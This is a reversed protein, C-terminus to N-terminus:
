LRPLTGVAVEERTHSTETWRLADPKSIQEGSKMFIPAFMERDHALQRAIRQKRKKAGYVCAAAVAAVVLIVAIIVIYGTAFLNTKVKQGSSVDAKNPGYNGLEGSAAPM